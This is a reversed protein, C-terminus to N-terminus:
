LLYHQSRVSALYSRKQKEFFSCIFEGVDKPMFQVVKGDAQVKFKGRCNYVEMPSNTGDVSVSARYEWYNKASRKINVICIEHSDVKRCVSASAPLSVTFTLILILLFIVFKM